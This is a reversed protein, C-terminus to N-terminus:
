QPTQSLKSRIEILTQKLEPDDQAMKDLIEGQNKQVLLCTINADYIAVTDKLDINPNQAIEDQCAQYATQFDTSRTSDISSNQLNTKLPEPLSNIVEPATKQIVTKTTTSVVEKGGNNWIFGGVALTGAGVLGAIKKKTTNFDM